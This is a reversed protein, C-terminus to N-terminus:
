QYFIQTVLAPSGSSDTQTKTIPYNNVNYTYTSLTQSVNTTNTASYTTSVINNSDGFRSTDYTILKNFGLVSNHIENKADYVYNSTQTEMTGNILIYQERKIAIGNQFFVKYNKTNTTQTVLDGSYISLSVTGDSNYIYVYKYGQNLSPNLSLAQVLKNDSNYSFNTTKSLVNDSYFDTRTILDNTYTYNTYNGESFKTQILKNGNYFYEQTVVNTGSTTIVKIPLIGNPNSASSTAISEDGSKSCSVFVFLLTVFLLTIKRM